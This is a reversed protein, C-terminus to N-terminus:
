QYASHSIPRKLTNMRRPYALRAIDYFSPGFSTMRFTATM